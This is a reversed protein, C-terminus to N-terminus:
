LRSVRSLETDPLSFLDLNITEKPVYNDVLLKIALLVLLLMIINRWTLMSQDIITFPEIHESGGEYHCHRRAHESDYINQDYLTHPSSPYRLSKNYRAICNQNNNEM